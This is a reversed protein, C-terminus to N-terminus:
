KIKQQWKMKIKAKEESVTELSVFWAEVFSFIKNIVVDLCSNKKKRLNFDIHNKRWTYLVIINVNALMANFDYLVLAIQVSYVAWYVISSVRFNHVVGHNESETENKCKCRVTLLFIFWNSLILFIGYITINNNLRFFCLFQRRIPHDLTNIYLHQLFVSFLLTCDSLANM